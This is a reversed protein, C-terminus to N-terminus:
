IIPTERSWETLTELYISEFHRLSKILDAKPVLDSFTRALVNCNWLGVAAQEGFAYRGKTDVQSAIFMPDPKTLLQASGLDLTLGAVSQNDTNMMGHVFGAHHWDAILRATHKVMADFLAGYRTTHEDPDRLLDPFCREFVHDALKRFAADNNRFYCAEFSGFRVFTPAMRVVIAASETRGGTLLQESGKIVALCRTTAIGLQELQESLEYEHLCESLTARGNGQFTFPTVGSGKLAIDWIGKATSVSGLVVSRGDGLFPNFRGFQHGAYAMAVPSSPISTPNGSFLALLNDNFHVDHELKLAHVLTTNQRVWQPDLLPTPACPQSLEHDTDAFPTQLRLM